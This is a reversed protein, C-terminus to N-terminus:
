AETPQLIDLLVGGSSGPPKGRGCPAVPGGGKRSRCWSPRLASLPPSAKTWTPTAGPGSEWPSVTRCNHEGNKATFMM